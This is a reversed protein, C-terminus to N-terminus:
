VTKLTWWVTGRDTTVFNERNGGDYMCERRGLVRHTNMMSYGQQQWLNETNMCPKCTNVIRYGKRNDCHEYNEGNEGDYMCEGRGLVHNVRNESHEDYQVGTQQWLTWLKWPKWRWVHVRMTRICPKCPKWLTWWVTGRDTTFLTWLKWPKVTM